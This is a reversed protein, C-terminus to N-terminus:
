LAAVAAFPTTQRLAALEAAHAAAAAEAAAVQATAAQLEAAAKAQAAAAAAAREQEQEQEVVQVMGAHAWATAHPQARSYVPKGNCNPIVQHGGGVNTLGVPSCSSVTRKEKKGKKGVKSKLAVRCGM